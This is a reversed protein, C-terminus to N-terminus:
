ETPPGCAMPVVSLGALAMQDASAPSGLRKVPCLATYREGLVAHSRAEINLRFSCRARVADSKQCSFCEFTHSPVRYFATKSIVADVRSKIVTGASKRATWLSRSRLRVIATRFRVTRPPYVKEPRTSGREIVSWPM